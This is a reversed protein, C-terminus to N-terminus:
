LNDGDSGGLVIEYNGSIIKQINDPSKEILSIAKGAFMRFFNNQTGWPLRKILFKRQYEELDIQVRPRIDKTPSRGIVSKM